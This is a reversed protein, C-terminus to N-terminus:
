GGAQRAAPRGGGVRNLLTPNATQPYQFPVVSPTAADRARKLFLEYRQYMKDADAQRASGQSALLAFFAAFFPVADTWLYPIAEPTTDDVLPIPYCVCDLNLTYNQNPPTIYITGNAGQGYQSWVQPASPTPVANSLYYNWFWEFSQPEIWIQGGSGSLYAAQRVNIVAQVGPPSGVLTISTFAYQSAASTVALTGIQRICEGEGAIQGRAENIYDTLDAPNYLSTPAGPNQLLRQTRTQYQTLM